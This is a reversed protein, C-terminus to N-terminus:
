ATGAGGKGMPTAAVPTIRSSRPDDVPEGYLISTAILDASFKAFCKRREACRPTAVGVSQM